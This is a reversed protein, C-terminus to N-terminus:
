GRILFGEVCRCSRCGPSSFPSEGPRFRGARHPFGLGVPRDSITSLWRVGPLIIDWERTLFGKMDRCSWSGPSTCASGGPRYRGSPHPFGLGVPHNSIAQPEHLWRAALTAGRALASTGGCGPLIIEWGRTLFGEMDRCNWCVSFWSPSGVPRYREVCHPFGLEPYAMTSQSEHLWHVVGLPHLSNLSNM